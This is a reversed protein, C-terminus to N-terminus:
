SKLGGQFQTFAFIRRTFKTSLKVGLFSLSLIFFVLAEVSYVM